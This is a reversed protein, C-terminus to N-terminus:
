KKQLEFTVWLSYKTTKTFDSSEQDFLQEDRGLYKLFNLMRKGKPTDLDYKDYIFSSETTDDDINLIKNIKYDLHNAIIKAQISANNFASIANLDEDEFNHEPMKYYIKEINIELNSLLVLLNEFLNFNKEEIKYRDINQFNKTINKNYVIGEKIGLAKISDLSKEKNSDKIDKSFSFIVGNSQAYITNTSKGLVKITTNQANSIGLFKFTLVIIFYFRM